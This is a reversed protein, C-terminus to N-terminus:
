QRGEVVAPQTRCIQQLLALMALGDTITPRDLSAEPRPWALTEMAIAAALRRADTTATRWERQLVAATAQMATDTPATVLITHVTRLVLDALGDIGSPDNIELVFLGHGGIAPPWPARSAVVAQKRGARQLEQALRSDVGTAFWHQAAALLHHDITAPLLWGILVTPTRAGAVQSRRLGAFPRPTAVTPIPAAALDTRAFTRQLVATTKAVDFDGLLVHMVRDPHQTRAWAARADDRSPMSRVASNRTFPHDPLALALLEAELSSTTMLERQQWCTPLERLAQRERRDLLMAAVEPLADGLTTLLLVSMPGRHELQYGHVPLAALLRPLISPDVLDAVANSCEQLRQQQAADPQPPLQQWLADLEALAQQEREPDRSGTNWTGNQAATLVVKGLGPLAPPDEAASTWSAVAWHVQQMTADACLLFRSGDPTTLAVPTQAGALAGFVAM